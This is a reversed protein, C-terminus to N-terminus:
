NTEKYGPATLAGYSNWGNPAYIWPFQDTVGDHPAGSGRGYDYGLIKHMVKKQESSGFASTMHRSHPAQQQLMSVMRPYPEAARYIFFPSAQGKKSFLTSLKDGVEDLAKVGAGMNDEWDSDPKLGQAAMADEMVKSMAELGPGAAKVSYGVFAKDIEEAEQATVEGVRRIECPRGDAHPTHLKVRVVGDEREDAVAFPETVASAVVQGPQFVLDLTQSGKFEVTAKVSAKRNVDGETRGYSTTGGDHRTNEWYSPRATGTGYDKYKVEYTASKDRRAPRRVAVVLVKYDQVRVAAFLSVTTIEETSAEEVLKAM